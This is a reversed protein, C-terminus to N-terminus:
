REVTANLSLVVFGEATIIANRGEKFLKADFGNM